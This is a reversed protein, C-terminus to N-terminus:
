HPQSITPNPQTSPRRSSVCSRRWMKWSGRAFGRASRRVTGLERGCGCDALGRSLTRTGEAQTDGGDEMWAQRRGQTEQLRGCGGEGSSGCGCGLAPARRGRMLMTWPRRAVVCVESFIPTEEEGVKWTIKHRPLPYGSRRCCSDNNENQLQCSLTVHVVLIPPACLM